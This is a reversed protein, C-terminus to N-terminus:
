LLKDLLLEKINSSLAYLKLQLIYLIQNFFIAFLFFLEGKETISVSGLYLFDLGDTTDNLRFM